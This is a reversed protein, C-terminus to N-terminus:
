TSVAVTYQKDLAVDIAKDMEDHSYALCVHAQASGRPCDRLWRYRRADIRDQESVEVSKLSFVPENGSWYDGYGGDDSRWEGATDSSPILKIDAVRPKGGVIAYIAYAIPPEPAASESDKM